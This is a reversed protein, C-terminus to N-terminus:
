KLLLPPRKTPISSSAAAASDDDESSSSPLPLLLMTGARMGPADAAAAPLHLPLPAVGEIPTLWIRPPISRPLTFGSKLAALSVLFGNRLSAASASSDKADFDSEITCNSGDYSNKWSFYGASM